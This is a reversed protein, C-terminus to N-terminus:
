GDGIRAKLLAPHFPKPLHDQAGAVICRVVSEIEDVASIMIVPIHRLSMDAKIRELTEYGNMVPMM